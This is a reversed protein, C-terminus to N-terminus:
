RGVEASSRPEGHAQAALDARIREQYEASETAPQRGRARWHIVLVVLLGLGGLHLLLPAFWAISGIGSAPPALMISSGYRSALYHKIADPSQGTALRQRILARISRAIDTTSDAVSEGHCIPCRLQAAVARTREDLSPRSAPHGFAISILLSVALMGAIAAWGLWRRM